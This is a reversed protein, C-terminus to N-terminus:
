EDLFEGFIEHFEKYIIDREEMVEDSGETYKWRNRLYQRFDNVARNLDLSNMAIVALDKEDDEYQLTIKM